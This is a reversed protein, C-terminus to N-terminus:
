IRLVVHSLRTLVGLGLNPPSLSWWLMLGNDPASVSLLAYDLPISHLKFLEPQSFSARISVMTYRVSDCDYKEAKGVPEEKSSHYDCPAKFIAQMSNLDSCAHAVAACFVSTIMLVAVFAFSRKSMLASTVAERRFYRYIGKGELDLSAQKM